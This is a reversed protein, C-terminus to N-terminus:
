LDTPLSIPLDTCQSSRVTHPVRGYVGIVVGFAASGSLGEQVTANYSTITCHHMRRQSPLPWAMRRSRPFDTSDVDSRALPIGLGAGAGILAALRRAAYLM